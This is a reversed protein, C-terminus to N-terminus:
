VQTFKSLLDDTIDQIKNKSQKNYSIIIQEKTTEIFPENITNRYYWKNDFFKILKYIRAEKSVDLIKGKSTQKYGLIGIEGFHEKKHCESCINVLNHKINKKFNTFKGDKNACIQYNIHHTETAKNVKCNFCMDMILNNNYNSQKNVLLNNNIGLLEKKIIEANKMFDDPMDLTRCVNIGYINSGQGEKLKREYIIKNNEIDIDIHVHYIKLNKGIKDKLLNISTLEHLHSTFIFSAKKNLLDNIASAVICVGSIAETGCCIEDGIILSSNDARQLINRLETMEVVFSSMNRYIDDNGCIRTIIKKYPYFKFLTAPVYMGAQAMILLLGVAKMFSSKGSSNIGYLLIGNENLYLDNGIYEIEKNLQEIIPHRLNEANIYSNNADTNIIPKYYCYDYANKANCNAIDLISINLIIENLLEIDITKLFSIYEKNAITKIKEEILELNDSIQKIDNSTLKYSNTTTLLKKEFKNMFNKDKKYANDFRKKTINIFYGEKDNNDLKAISDDLSSIYTVINNLKNLNENHEIMLNDLVDCYGKIFINTKIDNINYKSVENIDLVNLKEMLLNINNIYNIDNTIEFANKANELSNFIMYCESPNLKNLQIKRRYRELDNINSLYKSILKFKKTGNVDILLSEIKDYRKNLENIDTIPKLLNEKFMRSGFATSTRNLIEILPKDYKNNSILNLQLASNYEIILKNEYDIIEPINLEKIIENNHEYAFQLLVCLSYRAINYKEINLFEFISLMTENNYAKELIKTQYEIKSMYKPYTDWIKHIKCKAQIIDLINKQYKENNFDSLIVIEKPNYINLIRYCEDLCLQKDSKNSGNEYIFTRGTTLDAGSIGVQLLDNYLEFYYVLIFNGEKNTINNICTSPSLIETIKREPNPPPTTQEILVITYNNNLLLQIYKNISFLPFGAMLPNHKDVERISKNKRSIILNCLDGIKHINVCNEVVSYLEFFSGVQMLIITKEGYKNRYETEYNLYDDIIM